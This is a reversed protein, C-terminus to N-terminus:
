FWKSPIMVIMAIMVTIAIIVIVINTVNLNLTSSTNPHDLHYHVDNLPANIQLAQDRAQNSSINHVPSPCNTMVRPNKLSDKPAM